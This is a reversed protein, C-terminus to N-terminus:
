WEWEFSPFENNNIYNLERKERESKLGWYKDRRDDGDTTKKDLDNIRKYLPYNNDIFKGFRSNLNNVVVAQEIEVLFYEVECVKLFEGVMDTLKYKEKVTYQNHNYVPMVGEIEYFEIDEILGPVQEGWTGPYTTKEKKGTSKTYKIVNM